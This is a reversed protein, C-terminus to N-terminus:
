DPAPLPVAPCLCVGTQRQFSLPLPKGNVLQPSTSDAVGDLHALPFFLFRVMDGTVVGTSVRQALTNLLTTKGAGSEGM